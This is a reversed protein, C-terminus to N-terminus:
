KTLKEFTAVNAGAAVLAARFKKDALLLSLNQPGLAHHLRALKLRERTRKLDEDVRTLSAKLATKSLEGDPSTSERAKKVLARIDKAGTEHMAEMVIGQHKAPITALSEAEGLTLGALEEAAIATKSVVRQFRQIHKPKVKFYKAAQEVSMGRDIEATVLRAKEYWPLDDRILNEALFRGVIEVEPADTITADIKEWKLARAATLRGEGYVLMYRYTGGEPKQRDKAPWHSIDRVQIPMKLGVDAMSAKLQDWGEKDRSRSVFVAISDVDLREVAPATKM